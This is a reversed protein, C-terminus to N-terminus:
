ARDDAQSPTHLDRMARVILARADDGTVADAWM